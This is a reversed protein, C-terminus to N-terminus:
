VLFLMLGYDGDHVTIRIVKTWGLKRSQEIATKLWTKMPRGRKRTWKVKLYLARRMYNKKDKRLVHGYCRVGKARALQDMTQRLGIMQMLDKTSKKDMLKVGCMSRVKAGETRQLIGM